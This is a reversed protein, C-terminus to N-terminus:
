SCIELKAFQAAIQAIRASSYLMLLMADYVWTLELGFCYFIYQDFIGLYWNQFVPLPQQLGAPEINLQEKILLTLPCFHVVEQCVLKSADWAPSFVSGVAALGYLAM